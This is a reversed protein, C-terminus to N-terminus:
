APYARLVLNLQKQFLEFANRQTSALKRQSGLRDAYLVGIQQGRLVLGGMLGAHAEPRVTLTKGSEAQLAVSTVLEGPLHTAVGSEELRFASLEAWPGSGSVIRGQYIQQDPLRLAFVVCDFGGGRWLGDVAANLLVNLYVGAKPLAHMDSLTQLQIELDAEIWHPQKAVPEQLLWEVPCLAIAQQQAERLHQSLDATPQRLLPSVKTLVKDLAASNKTRLATAIEQGMAVFNVPKRELEEALGTLGWTELMRLSLQRITCGLIRREATERKEGAALARDLSEAQEEGFCWLALAGVDQLMAALFAREPDGGAKEALYRAQSATQLANNLIRAVKDRHAVSTVSEMVLASYCLTRVTDLGLVILARTITSIRQRAANFYSSNAMRLVLAALSPDAMVLRGIEGMSKADDATAQLLKQVTEGLLPLEQKALMGAWADVGRLDAM